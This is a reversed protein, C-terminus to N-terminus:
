STCAIVLVEPSRLPMRTESPEWSCRGARAPSRAKAFVGSEQFKEPLGPMGSGFSGSRLLPGPQKASGLVPTQTEFSFDAVPLEVVKGFPRKVSGAAAHVGALMAACGAVAACIRDAQAAAAAAAASGLTPPRIAIAFPGRLPM